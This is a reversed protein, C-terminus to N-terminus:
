NPCRQTMKRPETGRFSRNCGRVHCTEKQCKLLKRRALHPHGSVTVCSGGLTKWGQPELLDLCLWWSRDIQSMNPERRISKPIEGSHGQLKTIRRAQGSVGSDRFFIRLFYLSGWGPQGGFTRFFVSFICFSCNKPWTQIKKPIKIQGVRLPPNRIKKRVKKTNEPYQPKPARHCARLVVVTAQLLKRFVVEAGGGWASASCVQSIKLQLALEIIDAASREVSIGHDGCLPM